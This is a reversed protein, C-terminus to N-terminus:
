NLVHRMALGPTLTSVTPARAATVSYTVHLPPRWPNQWWHTALLRVTDLEATLVLLVAMAASISPVLAARASLHAHILEVSTSAPVQTVVGALVAASLSAATFVLLIDLTGSMLGSWVCALLTAVYMGTGAAPGFLAMGASTVLTLLIGLILGSGLASALPPCPLAPARTM